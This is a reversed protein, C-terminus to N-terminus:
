GSLAPGFARAAVDRPIRPETLVTGEDFLRQAAVAFAGYAVNSLVSGLSIRRVGAESLQAVTPGGPLQLVNVPAGTEDVVRRIQALDVLGPAYVVEAGADRYAVLRRLTDEFDDVGRIHNEARATLVIGVRAAAESARGIADVAADLPEIRGAVPNFDELSCGAAGAAALMEITAEVGGPDDPYCRESDVNIPLYTSACIATVHAVLEDRTVTADPRGLSMAFGASTTAMAPFGIATLIRAAGVDHPNPMVFTGEAHLARFSDVRQPQDM